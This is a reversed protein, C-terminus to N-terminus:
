KVEGGSKEAGVDGGAKYCVPHTPDVANCYLIAQSSTMLHFFSSSKLVWIGKGTTNQSNDNPGLVPSFTACGALSLAALTTLLLKKM